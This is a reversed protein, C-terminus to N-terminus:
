SVDEHFLNKERRLHYPTYVCLFYLVAGYWLGFLLIIFWVRRAPRSSNDLKTWFRWMGSWVFFVSLGTLVGVGGWLTKSWATSGTPVDLALLSTLVIILISAGIFLACAIRSLLWRDGVRDWFYTLRPIM